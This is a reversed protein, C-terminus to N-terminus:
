VMAVAVQSNASEHVVKHKNRRRNMKRKNKLKVRRADIKSRKKPEPKDFESSLDRIELGETDQWPITSIYIKFIGVGRLLPYKKLIVEVALRATEETQLLALERNHDKRSFFWRACCRGQGAYECADECPKKTECGGEDKKRKAHFRSRYPECIWIPIAVHLNHIRGEKLNELLIGIPVDGQTAVDEANLTLVKNNTSLGLVTSDGIFLLQAEHDIPILSRKVLYDYHRELVYSFDTQITPEMAPYYEDDILDPLSVKGKEKVLRAMDLPAAVAGDVVQYTDGILLEQVGHGHLILAGQDTEVGIMVVEVEDSNFVSRLKESLTRANRRAAALNYKHGKCGLLKNNTKSFHYTVLICVKRGKALAHNVKEGIKKTFYPNFTFKAGISNELVMAGTPMNTFINVNHREDTCGLVLFVTSHDRFYERRRTADKRGTHFGEEFLTEAM